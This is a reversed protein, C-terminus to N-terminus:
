SIWPCGWQNTLDFVRVRVDVRIQDTEDVDEFAAAVGADFM